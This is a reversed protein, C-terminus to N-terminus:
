LVEGLKKKKKHIKRMVILLLWITINLLEQISTLQQYQSEMKLHNVQEQLFYSNLLLIGYFAPKSTQKVLLFVNKNGEVKEIKKKIYLIIRPPSSVHRAILHVDTPDSVIKDLQSM